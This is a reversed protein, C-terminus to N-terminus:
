AFQDLDMARGISPTAAVLRRSYDHTPTDLVAAMEGTEAVRGADLVLIQDCARRVVHLDHTVFLSAIGLDSRLRALLELVQVQVTLDLASTPEDLILLQPEACLARAIAVRQRQGGSLAHPLRDVFATPLSVRDLLLAAQDRLASRGQGTGRLIAAETVSQWIPMRPNLSSQPDQFVMAIAVAADRRAARSLRTIDQGRWIIQGADAPLLGAIVRALTTKGSGSAGVIGLSSKDALDLDVDYLVPVKGYRARLGRVQLLPATM